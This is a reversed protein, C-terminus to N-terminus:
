NCFNVKPPVWQPDVVELFLNKDASESFPDTETAGLCWRCDRESPILDCGVRVSIVVAVIAMAEYWRWCDREM